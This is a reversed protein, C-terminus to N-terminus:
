VCLRRAAPTAIWPKTPRIFIEPCQWVKEDQVASMMIKTCQTVFVFDKLFDISIKM